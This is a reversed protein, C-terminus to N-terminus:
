RRESCKNFYDYYCNTRNIAAAITNNLDNQSLIKNNSSNNNVPTVNISKINNSNKNILISELSKLITM